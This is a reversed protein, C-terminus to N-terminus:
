ISPVSLHKRFLTNLHSSFFRSAFRPKTEKEPNAFLNKNGV